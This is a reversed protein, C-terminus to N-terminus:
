AVTSERFRALQQAFSLPLGGGRPAPEIAPPEAPVASVTVPLSTSSTQGAVVDM